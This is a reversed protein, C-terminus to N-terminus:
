ANSEQHETNGKITFVPIGSDELNEIENRNNRAFFKKAIAAAADKPLLTPEFPLSNEEAAM